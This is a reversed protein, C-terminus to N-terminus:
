NSNKNVQKLLTLITTSFFLADILIKETNSFDLATFVFTMVIYIYSTLLDCQRCIQKWEISNKKVTIKAASKVFWLPIPKCILIAFFVLFYIYTKESFYNTLLAPYKSTLYSCLKLGYELLALVSFLFCFSGAIFCTMYYKIAALKLKNFILSIICCAFIWPFHILKYIIVAFLAIGKLNKKVDLIHKKKAEYCLSIIHYIIISISFIFSYIFIIRYFNLIQKAEGLPFIFTSIFAVFYLFLFLGTKFFYKMYYTKNKISIAGHSFLEDYYYNLNTETYQKKHLKNSM